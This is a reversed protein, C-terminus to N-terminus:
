VKRWFASELVACDPLDLVRACRLDGGAVAAVVPVVTGTGGGRWRQQQVPEVRMARRGAGVKEVRMIQACVFTEVM